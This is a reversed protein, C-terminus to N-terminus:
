GKCFDIVTQSVIGVARETMEPFIPLSLVERAAKESNPFEGVEGLRGKYAPQLHIPVPYHILANIDREALILKLADRNNYRIVYLHYVHYDGLREEPVIVPLNILLRSYTEAIIRRRTNAEELHKLKVRLIAAQLEDMRSNWGSIKSIFKKKWGYQRLLRVKEALKFDNTIVIGADGIAGINKTPYFSFAVIDGFSGVQKGQYMAGHAQSCDEIVFINNLKAIELIPKMDAPQGYLHVLIVAKTRITLANAFKEPSLTYTDLNIDVLIPTAGCMEIAAVTAVSTHAVTIVQDGHGVNIAKLSLYLADTGSGVAVGFKVGVFKAFEHEFSNVEPGLIYQGSILVKQVAQNIEDKYALYQMVPDAHSIM